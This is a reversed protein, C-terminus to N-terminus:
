PRSSHCQETLVLSASQPTTLLPLFMPESKVEAAGCFDLTEPTGPLVCIVYDSVRFLELKDTITMDVQAVLWFMWDRAKSQVSDTLSCHELPLRVGARRHEEKSKKATGCNERDPVRGEDGKRDAACHARLRRLGCGAHGTFSCEVGRAGALSLALAPYNPQSNLNVKGAMTDMIFKDWVKGKTNAEILPAKKNYYLCAFMAYEALSDSFAGKGNSLPVDPRQVLTSTIFPALADVGVRPPLEACATETRCLVSIARACIISPGAFLSHVWKVNPCAAWLGELITADGGAGVFMINQVAPLEPMAKFEELTNAVLWTCGTDQEAELGGLAPSERPCVVAVTMGSLGSCAMTALPAAPDAALLCSLHHALRTSQPKVEHVCSM